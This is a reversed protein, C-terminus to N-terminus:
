DAGVAQSSDGGAARGSRARYGGLFLYLWDIQVPTFGVGCTPCRLGRGIYDAKGEVPTNRSPCNFVPAKM